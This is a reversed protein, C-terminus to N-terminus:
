ASIKTASKPASKWCAGASEGVRGTSESRYREFSLSKATFRLLARHASASRVVTCVRAVTRRLETLVDAHHPNEVGIWAKEEASGGFGARLELDGAAACTTTACKAESPAPGSTGNGDRQTCNEIQKQDM